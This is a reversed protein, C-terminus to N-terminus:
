WRNKVKEAFGLLDEVVIKKGDKKLEFYPIKFKVMRRFNPNLARAIREAADPKEAVILTYGRRSKLVGLEGLM